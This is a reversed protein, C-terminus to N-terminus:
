SIVLTKFESNIVLSESIAIPRTKGDIEITKATYPLGIMGDWGNFDGLVKLKSAAPAYVSFYCGLQGNLEILHSGFKEYLRSHYGSQFLEIDFSTFLSHPIVM